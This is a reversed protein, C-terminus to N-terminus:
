AAKRQYKIFPTLDAMQDYLRRAKTNDSQTLWYVGSAGATDAKDYVAQILAHGVGCGRIDPAVFLDQLYCVDNQRWMHRHFIYHALGIPQDDQMAILGNLDPCAPDLLRAFSSHYIEAPLETNYFALYAQWLDHWNPKDGATVPRITLSASM